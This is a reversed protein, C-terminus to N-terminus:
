LERLIPCQVMNSTSRALLYSKQKLLDLLLETTVSSQRLERNIHLAELVITIEAPQNFKLCVDDKLQSITNKTFLKM